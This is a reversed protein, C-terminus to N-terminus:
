LINEDTGLLERLEHDFCSTAGHDIDMSEDRQYSVGMAKRIGATNSIVAPPLNKAINTISSTIQDALEIEQKNPKQVLSLHPPIHASLREQQFQHLEMILESTTNLRSQFDSDKAIGEFADLFGVDIGLERLSRLEDFNIDVGELKKSAKRYDPLMEDVQKQAQKQQESEIMIDMTKSHEGNTLLDLLRNALNTSYLSDKTFRGISSAYNVGNEDGYTNLLLDAEEKTVNSFRTDFTPAFSSFPGYSLSKPLRLQNRKDERFSQLLGTGKELKGTLEGLKKTKEPIGEESTSLIINLSTTGDNGVKLFGMNHAKRKNLRSNAQKVQALIEDATMNDVFPEFPTKPDLLAKMKEKREREEQLPDPNDFGGNEDGSDVSFAEDQNELKISPDFGLEKTTLDRLFAAFSGRILNEHQLLKMGAVLLRKAAKNYVTEQHNYRIANDCMLKFDATFDSLVQYENDEIKQRITSFDMPKSIIQSYSPAIDDTVPWAFFQHPDRKELLKLLHELLKALPGRSQKLKLVCTRPERSSSDLSSPTMPSDQHGFPTDPKHDLPSMVNPVNQMTYYQPTTSEKMPIMPKTIPHTSVATLSSMSSYHLQPSGIPQSSEDEGINMPEDTATSQSHHRHRDKKHHKHKKERDKKKKKKKSKKHKEGSYESDMVLSSHGEHLQVNYPSDSSGYEPTGNM